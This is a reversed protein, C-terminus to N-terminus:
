DMGLFELETLISKLDQETHEWWDIRVTRTHIRKATDAALSWNRIDAAGETRPYLLVVHNAERYGTVYAYM